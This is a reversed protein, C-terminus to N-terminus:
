WWQEERNRMKAASRPFGWLQGGTPVDRDSFWSTRDERTVILVGLHEDMADQAYSPNWVTVLHHSESM